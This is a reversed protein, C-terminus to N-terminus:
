SHWSTWRPRFATKINAKNFDFSVESDVTLKLTDDRM